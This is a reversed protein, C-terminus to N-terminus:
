KSWSSWWPSSFRMHLTRERIDRGKWTPYLRFILDKTKGRRVMGLFSSKATGHTVLDACFFPGGLCNKTGVAPEPRRETPCVCTSLEWNHPHRNFSCIQLHLSDRRGHWHFRFVYIQVSLCIFAWLAQSFLQSLSFATKIRSCLTVSGVRQASGWPACQAQETIRGAAELPTIWLVWCKLWCLFLCLGAEGVTPCGAHHVAALSCQLPFSLEMWPGTLTQIIKRWM